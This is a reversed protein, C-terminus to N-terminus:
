STEQGIQAYIKPDTDPITYVLNKRSIRYTSLTISAKNGMDVKVGGEVQDGSEPKFYFIQGIENDSPSLPQYYTSRGIFWTTG